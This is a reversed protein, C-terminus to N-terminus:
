DVDHFRCRTRLVSSAATAGAAVYGVTVMLLTGNQVSAIAATTGMYQTVANLPVEVDVNVCPLGSLQAGLVHVSDWLVTFRNQNDVNYHSISSASTLIDTVAPLAGNAANDWVLLTRVKQVSGTSTNFIFGSVSVSRMTVQRGTRATYDDGEATLNLATVTGTTDYAYAAAAVDVYKLENRVRIPGKVPVTRRQLGPVPGELARLQASSAAQGSTKRGQPRSGRRRTMHCAHPSKPPSLLEGCVRPVLPPPPPLETSLYSVASTVALYL